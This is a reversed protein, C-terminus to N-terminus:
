EPEDDDSDDDDTDEDDTDEDKVLRDPFMEDLQASAQEGAECFAELLAAEATPQEDSEIEVEVPLVSEIPQGPKGIQTLQVAVAGKYKYVKMKAM